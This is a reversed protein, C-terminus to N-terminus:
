SQGRTHEDLDASIRSVVVDGADLYPSSVADVPAGDEGLSIVVGRGLLRADEIVEAADSWAKIRSELWKWPTAM